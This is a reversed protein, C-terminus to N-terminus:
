LLHLSMYLCVPVYLSLCPWVPVSLSLCPCVPVSLSLCPCAHVSLSLCPCAPVFLSHGQKDRSTGTQGQWTGAQGQKTGAQGQKDRHQEQCQSAYNTFLRYQHQLGCQDLSETDGLDLIKVMLKLKAGNQAFLKFLGFFVLKLFHM